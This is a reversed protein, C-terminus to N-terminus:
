VNREAVQEAEGQSRQALVLLGALKLVVGEGTAAAHQAVVVGVGEGRGAPEGGIQALQALILLGACEVLVGQGAAAPHQTVVVGVGEGRGVVKGGVQARQALGLLRSVVQREAKEGCRRAPDNEVPWRRAGRGPPLGPRTLFRVGGEAIDRGTSSVLRGDSTVDEVRVVEVLHAGDELLSRPTWRVGHADLWAGALQAVM